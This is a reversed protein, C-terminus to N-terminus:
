DTSATCLAYLMVGEIVHDKDLYVKKGFPSFVKNGLIMKLKDSSIAGVKVVQNKLNIYVTYLNDQAILGKNDLISKLAKARFVELQDCFLMLCPYELGQEEKYGKVVEGPKHDMSTSQDYTPFYLESM